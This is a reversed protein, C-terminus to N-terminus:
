WFCDVHSVLLDAGNIDHLVGGVPAVLIHSRIAAAINIRLNDSVQVIM